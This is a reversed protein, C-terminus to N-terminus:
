PPRPAERREDMRSRLWGDILQAIADSNLEMMLMHGNGQLGHQPLSLYTADGGAAQLLAVADLASARVQEYLPHGDVHDGWVTLFPIRSHVDAIRDKALPCTGEIEVLGIVLDPRKLSLLLGYEGSQSHTVVVAPGIRDLLSALAPISGYVDATAYNWDPVVQPWYADAHDKPFQSDPYWAGPEPGFRGVSWMTETALLFINPSADGAKLVATPSFGSRGRGVQDVIYVPYGHRVFWTAWGERGDPTTDWCHGSHSGGHVMVLSPLTAGRAAPIQYSVYMQDVVHHGGTGLDLGPAVPMPTASLRDALMTRGHVYFAGQRAISLPPHSEGSNM